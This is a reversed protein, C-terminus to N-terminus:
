SSRKAVQALLAPLEGSQRLRDFWPLEFWRGEVGNRLAREANALASSDDGVLAYVLSAEYATQPNDAALRLAAQAAAVAERKKGLHALAQARTTATQWDGEAARETLGVVMTYHKEAESREGLMWIADALNLATFPNSPELALAKEFSERAERYRGLLFQALGLNSLPVVGPAEASIGAYLEAAKEASGNLLELQALLARGQYSTPFRDLLEDLHSRAAVIEGQRLEMGALSYLRRWSPHREAARRLLALGERPKGQRELLVGRQALVRPDGPELRELEALAAEAQDLQEGTVAVDFLAFLPQPDEPAIRRAAAVHAFARKLDEADRSDAYRFRAVDAALLWGDLFRPSSALIGELEEELEALSASRPQSLFRRQVSLFRQYDESAVVLESAGPRLPRDGYGRRLQAVTASAAAFLDDPAIEFASAWVVSGDAGRLRELEVRCSQGQCAIRSRLLEGVAEARAVAAPSGKSAEAGEVAIAAVGSLSALGRLLAARTSAALLPLRPDAADGPTAVPPVAVFLPPLSSRGLLLWGGAGLLALAGALAAALWRRRAPHLASSQGPPGGREGGPLAASPGRALAAAEGTALALVVTQEIRSLEAVVERASAPRQERDKELLRDVLESLGIPLEPVLEALPEQRATCIRTLTEVSSEAAFPSAGGFMEYLLVGLAFLDSRSDLEGGLAQEPSMSRITGVLVHHGTLQSELSEKGAKKALGFDLVKAHGEDTVLVNEAKLDRHIIGAEHAAALGSAIEKALALRAAVPREAERLWAALPEGEVLEMVIALGDAGELIDHIQVVAPHSLRAAARAERRLREQALRDGSTEDHIEKIAVWRELRTDYARYVKGMGGSGIEAGLAYPGLHRGSLTPDLRVAM